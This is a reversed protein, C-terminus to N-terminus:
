AGYRSRRGGRGMGGGIDIRQLEHRLADTRWEDSGPALPVKAPILPAVAPSRRSHTPSTGGGNGYGNNHVQERLPYGGVSSSSSSSSLGGVAGMTVLAPSSSVHTPRGPAKKVLRNRAAVTPSVSEASYAHGAGGHATVLRPQIVTERPLRPAAEPMPQAGQPSARFRLTVEPGKRAPKREPEPAWNHTPLHDSPDIIRGGPGIIPEDEGKREPEPQRGPHRAQEPTPYKSGAENIGSAAELNPNLTNYSDPSFPVSSYHHEPPASEPQPSVSKRMPTRPHPSSGRARIIPASNRHERRAHAIASSVHANRGEYRATPHGYRGEASPHSDNGPAFSHDYAVQTSIPRSRRTLDFEADSLRPDYGAVLSPPTPHSYQRIPTHSEPDHSHHRVPPPYTGYSTVLPTAYSLQTEGPSASLPHGNETMDMVSQSLPSPAQNAMSYRITLPATVPGPLFSRHHDPEITHTPTSLGSSRHVPPPPPPGEPEYAPYQPLPITDPASEYRRHRPHPEQYGDNTSPSSALYAGNDRSAQPHQRIDPSSYSPSVTPLHNSYSDGQTFQHAIPWAVPRAVRPNYPPLQPLDLPSPQAYQPQPHHTGRVEYRTASYASPTDPLEPHQMSSPTGMFRSAVDRNEVVAFQQEHRVPLDYDSPTNVYHDDERPEYAAANRCPTLDLANHGRLPLQHNERQRYELTDHSPHPTPGQINQRTKMTNYPITPPQPDDAIEPRRPLSDASSPNTPLPRRKM